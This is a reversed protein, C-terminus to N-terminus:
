GFIDVKAQSIHFQNLKAFAGWINEVYYTEEMFIAIM